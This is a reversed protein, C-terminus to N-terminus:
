VDVHMSTTPLTTGGACTYLAKFDVRLFVFM